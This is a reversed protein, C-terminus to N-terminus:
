VNRIDICDGSLYKDNEAIQFIKRAAFEPTSLLNERKLKVFKDIEEFDNKASSRIEEQMNTDVVGPRLSVTKFASNNVEELAITKTMLEMGAKSSCYSVWGSYASVAAGSSINLIRLSKAINKFRSLFLSSLAIPVTLNLQITNSLRQISSDELRKIEGLEGANNILFVRNLSCNSLKKIIDIVVGEVKDLDTLDILYESHFNKHILDINTRSISIVKYGGECFAEGLARGLGKSGGTIIAIKL